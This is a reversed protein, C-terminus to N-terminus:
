SQGVVKRSLRALDYDAPRRFERPSLIGTYLEEKYLGRHYFQKGIRYGFFYRSGVHLLVILGDTLQDIPTMLQPMIADGGILIPM